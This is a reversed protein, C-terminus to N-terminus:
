GNSYSGFTDQLRQKEQNILQRFYEKPNLGFNPKVRKSGQNANIIEFIKQSYAKSFLTNILAGVGGDAYTNIFINKLLIDNTAFMFIDDMNKENYHFSSWNSLYNLDWAQNKCGDFIKEIDNSGSNKPPKIGSQNTFLMTIYTITSESILLFQYNWKLFELMKEVPSLNHNRYLYVVHLMEAIHMLLHDDEESYKIETIFPEIPLSCVPIKDIAGEALRLWIMGPYYKFINNFEQLELKPGIENNIKTGFEQLALGASAPYNNMSLWTMLLAIIRMEEENKLYGDRSLRLLSSLLNRDLMVIISKHDKLVSLAKFDVEGERSYRPHFILQLECITKWIFNYEEEDMALFSM